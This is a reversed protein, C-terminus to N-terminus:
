RDATRLEYKANSAGGAYAAPSSKPSAHPAENLDPVRCAIPLAPVMSVDEMHIDQQPQPVSSETHAPNLSNSSVSLSLQHMPKPAQEPITPEM